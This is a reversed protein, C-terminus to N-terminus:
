REEPGASFHDALALIADNINQEKGDAGFALLPRM